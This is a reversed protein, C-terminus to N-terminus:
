GLGAADHMIALAQMEGDQYEHALITAGIQKKLDLIETSIDDLVAPMHPENDNV